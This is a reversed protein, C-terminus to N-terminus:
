SAKGHVEVMLSIVDTPQITYLSSSDVWARLRYNESKSKQTSSNYIVMSGSQSGLTSNKNSLSLLKPEDTSTFEGSKQKELYVKINKVPVTNEKNPIVSLEYEIKSAEDLAFSVSFDFYMDAKNIKIGDEDKYSVLNSLVLSNEDDTYTLNISGGELEEYKVKKPANFYSVLILSVIGIVVITSFISGIIVGRSIKNKENEM